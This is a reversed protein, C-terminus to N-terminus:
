HVHACSISGADAANWRTKSLGKAYAANLLVSGQSSTRGSVRAVLLGEAAWDAHRMASCAARGPIAPDM